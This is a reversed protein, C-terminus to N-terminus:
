TGRCQKGCGEARHVSRRRARSALSASRGRVGDAGWSGSSCRTKSPRKESCSAGMSLICSAGTSWRALADGAQVVSTSLTGTRETLLGSPHLGDSADALAGGLDDEGLDSGVHAATRRRNPAFFGIVQQHRESMSTYSDVSDIGELLPALLLPSMPLQARPTRSASIWAAILGARNNSTACCNTSTVHGRSGAALRSM